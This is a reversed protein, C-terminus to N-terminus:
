GGTFRIRGYDPVRNRITVELGPRRAYLDVTELLFVSPAAELYVRGLAQIARLREDEDQILNTAELAEAIDPDCFFSAARLCSFVEMPRAVDNYPASNWSVVFADGRWGNTSFRQLFQPFTIINLETRVGIARWYDAVTQAILKDAPYSDVTLEVKLSFGEAYGAEALLRRAREPDYPYGTLAPDHGFTGHPAPQTAPRARGELLVRAIAEKDVAYNLAQRVRRDRLPADPAATKVQFSVAMTQMAPASLVAVGGRELREIQDVDIPALDVDGSLLAQARVASNPMEHFVIRELAPPRWAHPNRVAAAQRRRHDWGELLFPGTGVPQQAFGAPGLRRWLDPEVMMVSTMRRPLIPDPRTTEIEVVHGGVARVAAVNRLENGIVTRRGEASRLWDMVAVVAAADFARGNAFRVGRRLEFRWVLPSPRSWSQALAPQLQGDDDLETLGEFLAFWVLSGPRGNGKFPDGLSPPFTTIAVRLDTPRPADSSRSCGVCVVLALVAVAILRTM